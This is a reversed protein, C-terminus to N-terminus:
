KKRRDDGRNREENTEETIWRKIIEKKRNMQLKIVEKDSKKM